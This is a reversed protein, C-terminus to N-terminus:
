IPEGGQWVCTSLLIHSFYWANRGPNLAHSSTAKRSLHGCSPTYFSLPPFSLHTVLTGHMAYGTRRALCPHRLSNEWMTLYALQTTISIITQFSIQFPSPTSHTWRSPPFLSFLSLSLSLPLDIIVHLTNTFLVCKIKCFFYFFYLLTTSLIVSLPSIPVHTTMWILLIEFKPV